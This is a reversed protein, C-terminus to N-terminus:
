NEIIRIWEKIILLENENKIINKEYLNKYIKIFDEYENIIIFDDLYSIIEEINLYMEIEDKFDKLYNHVNRDQYVNPPIFSINNKTKSIFKQAIYM